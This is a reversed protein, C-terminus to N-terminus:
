PRLHAGGRTLQWAGGAPQVEEFTRVYGTHAIRWSGDGLVYRDDYFAAGRLRMGSDRFILYDELYWTGQAHAADILEIEPHHGQHLSLIDHSGLATSLFELIAARGTFSYKGGDYAATADDTFCAGLEDWRKSDLLRFYRYKLQRIAEIAELRSM